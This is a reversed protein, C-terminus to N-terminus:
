SKIEQQNYFGLFLLLAGLFLVIGIGFLLENIFPFLIYLFSLGGQTFLIIENLVIGIVFLAIGTSLLKNLVIISTSLLHHLLFLTIIGLLVLHLYAIVIIRTGFVLTNLDPFILGLQMLFKLNTAIVVLVLLQKLIPKIEITFGKLFAFLKFWYFTQVLTFIVTIAYIWMPLKIWLISLFYTILGSSFLAWFIIKLDKGFNSAKIKDIFLGVIAFFFWGNYQFHLYFYISSLYYDQVINKSMMMYALYFTGLSSIVNFFLAARFWIISAHTKALYRTEKIFYFAFLYTVAISLTSFFISVFAYGKIIFAVLMGYACILNAVLLLHFKKTNTNIKNKEIFHILLLFLTQSIWGAFAFHSHSHLVNKQELFPFDFAIKYRMLVGLLAVIFLNFVSIKVWYKQLMQM